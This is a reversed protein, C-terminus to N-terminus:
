DKRFMFPHHGRPPSLRDSASENTKLEKLFEIAVDLAKSLQTAFTQVQEPDMKKVSELLQALWENKETANLNKSKEPRTNNPTADKRYAEWKPDDEGLLYWEEFLEQWTTEKQRVEKILYPHNQVFAKFKQVEASLKGTM